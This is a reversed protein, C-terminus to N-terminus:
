KEIKVQGNIKSHPQSVDNAKMEKENFKISSSPKLPAKIGTKPSNLPTRKFRRFHKNKILPVVNKKINLLEDQHDKIFEKVENRKEQYVKKNKERLNKMEQNVKQVFERRAQPDNMLKDKNEEAEQRLSEITKQRELKLQQYTENLDNWLPQIEEKLQKIEQKTKDDLNTKDLENLLHARMIRQNFKVNPNILMKKFRNKIASRGEVQEMTKVFRELHKKRVQELIEKVQEPTKNELTEFVLQHKFIFDSYKDLFKEIRQDDPHEAKYKELQKKVREMAQTYRQNAKAIRTKLEEESMHKTDVDQKVKLINATAKELELNAKNVPDFTFILQINRWLNSFWGTKINGFDQSTVQILNDTQQNQVVIKHVVDGVSSTSNTQAFAPNLAFVLFLLLFSIFMKKVLM